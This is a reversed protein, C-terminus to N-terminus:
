KFTWGAALSFEPNFMFPKTNIFVGLRAEPQIWFSETVNWDYGLAPQMIFYTPKEAQTHFVESRSGSAWELFAGGWFPGYLFYRGGVIFSFFEQNIDVPTDATAVAGSRYRVTGKLDIKRLAIGVRLFIKQSWPWEAMAGFYSNTGTLNGIDSETGDSDQFIRSSQSYISYNYALGFRWGSLAYDSRSDLWSDEASKWTFEPPALIYARVRGKSTKISVRLWRRNRKEIEVQRGAKLTGLVQAETSPRAYVTSPGESVYTEASATMAAFLISFFVLM